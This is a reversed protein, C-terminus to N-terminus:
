MREGSSEPRFAGGCLPCRKVSRLQEEVQQARAKLTQLAVHKAELSKALNRIEERAAAVARFRDLAGADAAAREPVHLVRLRRAAAAAEKFRGQVRELARLLSSLVEPTGEVWGSPSVAGPVSIEPATGSNLAAGGGTPSGPVIGSLSLLVPLRLVIGEPTGSPIASVANGGAADRRSCPGGEASVTFTADINNAINQKAINQKAINQKANNTNDQNAANPSDEGGFGGRSKGERSDLSGSGPSAGERSNRFDFGPSDGKRSVPDETVLPTGVPVSPIRIVPDGNILDGEKPDKNELDKLSICPPDGQLFIRLPSPLSSVEEIKKKIQNLQIHTTTLNTLTNTNTTTKSILNKIPTVTTAAENLFTKLAQIKDELATLNAKHHKIATKHDQIDETILSNINTTNDIEATKEFVRFLETSSLGFPFLVDTERHFNAFTGYEDKDFPLTPYFDALKSRGTKRYEEEGIRYQATKAERIWTIPPHGEMELSVECSDAGHRIKYRGSPPNELLSVLARQAATKGSNSPGTIVTIGPRIELVAEKISQFNKLRLTLNV